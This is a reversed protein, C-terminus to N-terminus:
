KKWQELMMEAGFSIISDKSNDRVYVTKQIAKIRNFDLKFSLMAASMIVREDEHDLLEHLIKEGEPNNLDVALDNLKSMASNHEKRRTKNGYEDMFCKKRSLEIILERYDIM